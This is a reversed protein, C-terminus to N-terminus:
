INGDDDSYFHKVGILLCIISIVCIILALLYINKWSDMYTREVNYRLYWYYALFGNTVVSLSFALRNTDIIAVALIILQVGILIWFLYEPVLSFQFFINSEDRPIERIGQLILIFASIIQM